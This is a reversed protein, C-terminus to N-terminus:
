KFIPCTLNGKNGIGIHTNEIKRVMCWNEIKRVMCWNEIKRVMCWNEIKRVM